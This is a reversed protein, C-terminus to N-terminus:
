IGQAKPPKDAGERIASLNNDASRTQNDEPVSSYLHDAIRDRPQPVVERPSTLATATSNSSVTRDANQKTSEPQSHTSDDDSFGTQHKSPTSQEGGDDRMQIFIEDPDLSQKGVHDENWNQAFEIFVPEIASNHNDASSKRRIKDM